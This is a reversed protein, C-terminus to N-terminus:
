PLNVRLRLYRQTGAKIPVIDRLTM